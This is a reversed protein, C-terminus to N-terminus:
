KNPSFIIDRFACDMLLLNMTELAPESRNLKLNLMFSFKFSSIPVPDPFATCCYFGYFLSVRCNLNPCFNKNEIKIKFYSTIM